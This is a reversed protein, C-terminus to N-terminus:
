QVVTANSWGGYLTSQRIKNEVTKLLNGLNTNPYDTGSFSFRLALIATKQGTRAEDRRAKNEYGRLEAQLFKEDDNFFLQVIDWYNATKGEITKTIQLAM